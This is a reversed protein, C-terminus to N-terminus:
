EFKSSISKAQQSHKESAYVERRGFHKKPEYNGLVKKEWDWLQGCRILLEQDTEIEQKYGILEEPDEINFVPSQVTQREGKFDFLWWAAPRRGPNARSAYWENLISTGYIKWLQHLQELAVNNYKSSAFVVLELEDADSLGAARKSKVRKRPM